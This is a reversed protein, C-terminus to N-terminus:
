SVTVNQRRTRMEEMLRKALTLDEDDVINYRREMADTKHGSIKMRIVQPVGDGRMNRIATRRLDHFKLDSVGATATAREWATRFDKVQKGSRHFVWPSNPFNADRDRKAITLLTFMDGNLIPVRRGKGTKTTEPSLDLFGSELDVQPWRISLLETKRIGTCYAIVFLLRIEPEMIADRLKEYVEDPLFGTRVNTERRMPFYPCQHVKPPTRKRANNFATRLITLERNVTAHTRGQGTRKERYQEIIDSTLRAAKVHGFFPRLNAETVLKWVKRTSVAIDSELLTSFIWANRLSNEAKPGHEPTKPL